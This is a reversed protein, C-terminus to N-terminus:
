KRPWKLLGLNMAGQRKGLFMKVGTPRGQM